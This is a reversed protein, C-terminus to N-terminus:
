TPAKQMSTPANTHGVGREVDEESAQSWVVVLDGTVPIRRLQAPANPAALLTPQPATWTEGDDASWSQFLRGLETRMFMLLHGPAVEEVTPEATRNWTM